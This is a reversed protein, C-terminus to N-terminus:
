RNSTIPTLPYIYIYRRGSKVIQSGNNYFPPPLSIFCQHHLDYIFTELDDSHNHFLTYLNLFYSLKIYDM